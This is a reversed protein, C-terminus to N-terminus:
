ISIKLSESYKKFNDLIAQWWARQEDLSHIAEVDFTEWVIVWDWSKEFTVSVKRGADLFYEKMEGMTYNIKKMPEIENYQGTMDFGFSGDRAEMRTTFIWGTKQAEWKAWPCHWDNSAFCWNVIHVPNWFADWVTELPALVSTSVTLTDM